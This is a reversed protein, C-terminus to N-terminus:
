KDPIRFKIGLNVRLLACDHHTDLRVGGVLLQNLLGLGQGEPGLHQQHVNLLLLFSLISWIPPRSVELTGLNNNETLFAVRSITNDMRLDM